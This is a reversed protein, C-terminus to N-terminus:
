DDSSSLEELVPGSNGEDVGHAPDGAAGRRRPGAIGTVVVGILLGVVLIAPWPLVRYDVGGVVSVDHTTVNGAADRAVVRLTQPWPGITMEFAFRGDADVSVNGVGPVTVAAGVEVVGEFTAPVPWIPSLFPAPVSVIPGVVDRRVSGEVLKGVEGLDDITLVEVVWHDARGGDATRGVLDIMVSGTTRGSPAGTPVDIRPMLPIPSAAADSRPLASGPDTNSAAPATSAVIRSGSPAVISVAPGNAAVTDIAVAGAPVTFSLGRAPVEALAFPRGFGHRWSGDARGAWPAPTAPRLIVAEVELGSAVLLRRDGPPGLAMLPRTGVWAPGPLLQDTACVIIATPLFLDPCSPDVLAIGSGVPPAQSFAGILASGVVLNWRQTPPDADWMVTAPGTDLIGTASRTVLETGINGRGAVSPEMWAVRAQPLGGALLGGRGAVAGLPIANGTALRTDAWGGSPDLVALGRPVLALVEHRGDGDADFRVPPAVLVPGDAGSVAAQDHVTSGDALRILQLRLEGTADPGAPCNPYAYAVLDDGPIDDFAGLVGSALRVGDVSFPVPRGPAGDGFVWFDSGQCTAGRRVTRASAVVLDARGDSAVDAAGADSVVADVLSRGVEVVVPGGAEAVVLHVIDTRQDAESPAILAFRDDGLGVLWPQETSPSSVGPTEVTWTGAMVWAGDRELIALRVGTAGLEVPDVVLLRPTGDPGPGALVAVDSRVHDLVNASSSPDAAIVPSMAVTLWGPAVMALAITARALGSSWRGRPLRLSRRSM